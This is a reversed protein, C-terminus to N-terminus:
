RKSFVWDQPGDGEGLDIILTAADKTLSKITAELPYPSGDDITLTSGSISWDFPFSDTPDAPYTMTITGTNDSKFTIVFTYGTIMPYGGISECDWTGVILEEKTPDEDKKCSTFVLSFCLFLTTLYLINKM